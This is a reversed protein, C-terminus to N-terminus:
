QIIKKTTYVRQVDGEQILKKFQMRLREELKEMDAKSDLDSKKMASLDGLIINNIQFKRLELDDRTAQDDTVITFQVNLFREDAINTTLDDTQLSRADLEEGTPQEVKAETMDNALFYNMIMYGAGIMLAAVIIMILPIKLKSKKKEEAM